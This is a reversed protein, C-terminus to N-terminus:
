VKTTYGKLLSDNSIFFITIFKISVHCVYLRLM